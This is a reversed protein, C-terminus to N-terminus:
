AARTDSCGRLEAKPLRGHVRFYKGLRGCRCDDEGHVTALDETLLSHGPYSVPVVSLTQLLGPRGFPLPHLTVTDRVIVDAFVPAHLYGEACEVYISGVQEVMGYYNIIRALGFQETLRAKFMENSVQEAELRKWGGGHLLVSDDGFRIRRGEQRAAQYLRTWVLFTFGFVLVRRLDEASFADLERWDPTLEEDLLYRVDRGFIAFGLIAAARAHLRTRDKLFAGSDVVLMPRRAPGLFDQMIAVLAQTQRAATPADLFIRAPLAGSTGSSLLTRTVAEPPVSRLELTKFLSVPIFPLDALAQPDPRAPLAALIRAYPASGERARAIGDRLAALLRAHKPAHALGFPAGWDAIPIV